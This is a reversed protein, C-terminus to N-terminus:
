LDSLLFIGQSYIVAQPATKKIAVFRSPLSLIRNVQEKSCGMYDKLFARIHKVSGAKPFVVVIQSENLCERTQSYNLLQHSNCLIDTNCHRGTELITDRLKIIYKKLEKSGKIVDIDDFIVLSDKFEDEIDLTEDLLSEDIRIRKPKPHYNDYAKDENISSFIFINNKPFMQGYKKVYKGMQTSKGAGSPGAYYICMRQRDKSKDPPYICFEGDKIHFELNKRNNLEKKVIIYIDRLERNKPPNNEMVATCIDHMEELSLNKKYQKIKDGDLIDFIDNEIDEKSLANDNIRVIEKDFKGGVIYAVPIGQKLSLM